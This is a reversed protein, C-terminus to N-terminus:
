NLQDGRQYKVHFMWGILGLRIANGGPPCLRGTQLPNGRRSLREEPRPNSRAELRLHSHKTRVSSAPTMRPSTGTGLIWHEALAPTPPYPHDPGGSVLGVM